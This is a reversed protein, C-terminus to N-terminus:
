QGIISSSAVVDLCGNEDLAPGVIPCVPRDLHAGDTLDLEDGIEGRLAVGFIRALSPHGGADDTEGIQSEAIAHLWNQGGQNLCTPAAKAADAIVRAPMFVGDDAIIVM